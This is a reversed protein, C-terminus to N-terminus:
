FTTAGSRRLNKRSVFYQQRLKGKPVVLTGGSIVNNNNSLIYRSKDKSGRTQETKIEMLLKRLM